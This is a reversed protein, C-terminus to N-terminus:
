FSPPLPPFAMSTCVEDEDGPSAEQPLGLNLLSSNSLSQLQQEPAPLTPPQPQPLPQQRQSPTVSFYRNIAPQDAAWAPLKRKGRGAMRHFTLLYTPYPDFTLTVSPADFPGLLSAQVLTVSSSSFLDVAAEYSESKARAMASAM